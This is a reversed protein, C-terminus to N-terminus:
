GMSEGQEAAAPGWGAVQGVVVVLRLAGVLAGGVDVVLPAALAVVVAEDSLLPDEGAPGTEVVDGEGVGRPGLPQGRGGLWPTGQLQSPLPPDQAVGRSRPATPALCSPAM